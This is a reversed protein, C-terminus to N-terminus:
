SKPSKGIKLPIVLALVSLTIAFYGVRDFFLIEGTPLKEVIQGAILAALAASLHQFSNILSMFSGRNEIPAMSTIWTMAATMRAGMFVFFGTVSAIALWLHDPLIHTIWFISILSLLLSWIFVKFFGLRDVLVGSIVSSLISGLGAFLYIWTLQTEPIKANQILNVFLFPNISFHGLILLIIFAVSLKQNQSQLLPIQTKTHLHQDYKPLFQLTLLLFLFSLGGLLWFPASWDLKQYLFLCLPVGIISAFAFASMVLGMATGRRKIDITDSLIALILSGIVGVFAGTIGRAVTFQWYENSLACAVNGVIFGVVVVILTQRRDFRDLHRSCALGTLGAALTFTTVLWSLQGTSIAFLNMIHPAMPMIIMFDIIMIFHIFFLLGLTIKEKRNFM